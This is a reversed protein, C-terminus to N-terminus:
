DWTEESVEPPSLYFSTGGPDGTVVEPLTPYSDTSEHITQTPGVEM